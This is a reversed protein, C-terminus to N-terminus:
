EQVRSHDRAGLRHDDPGVGTDNPFELTLFAPVATVLLSWGILCIAEWRTWALFQIFKYKRGVHMVWLSSLNAVRCLPRM